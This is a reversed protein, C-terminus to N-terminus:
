MAKSIELAEYVHSIGCHSEEIVMWPLLTCLNVTSSNSIVTRYWSRPISFLYFTQVYICYSWFVGWHHVFSFELTVSNLYSFIKVINKFFLICCESSYGLRPFFTYGKCQIAKFQIFSTYGKCKMARYQFYLFFHIRQVKHGHTSYFFFLPPSVIDTNWGGQLFSLPFLVLPDCFTALYLRSSSSLLPHLFLM